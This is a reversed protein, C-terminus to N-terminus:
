IQSIQLPLKETSIEQSLAESHIPTTFCQTINTDYKFIFTDTGNNQM